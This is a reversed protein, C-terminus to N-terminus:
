VAVGSTEDFHRPLVSIAGRVFDLREVLLREMVRYFGKINTERFGQRVYHAKTEEATTYNPMVLDGEVSYVCSQSQWKGGSVESISVLQRTSENQLYCM